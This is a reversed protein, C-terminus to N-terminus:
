ISVKYWQDELCMTRDETGDTDSGDLRGECLWGQQLAVGDYRSGM